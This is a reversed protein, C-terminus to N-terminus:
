LWGRIISVCPGNQLTFFIQQVFAKTVARHAAVFVNYLLDARREFRHGWLSLLWSRCLMFCICTILDTYPSGKTTPLCSGSLQCSYGFDASSVEADKVSFIRCSSCSFCRRATSRSVVSAREASSSHLSMSHRSFVQLRWCSSCIHLDEISCRLHSSSRALPPMVTAIVARRFEWNDFCSLGLRSSFSSLRM